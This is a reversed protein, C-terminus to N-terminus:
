SRVLEWGLKHLRQFTAWGKSHHQDYDAIAYRSGRYHVWPEGPASQLFLVKEGDPTLSRWQMKGMFLM